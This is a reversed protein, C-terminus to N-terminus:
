YLKLAYSSSRDRSLLLHAPNIHTKELQILAKQLLDPTIATKESASEFLDCRIGSQLDDNSPSKSLGSTKGGGGSGSISSSSRGNTSVIRTGTRISLAAETLRRVMDWALFGLLEVVDDNLRFDIYQAPNLWDRFKKAKKFTFSAQRCEAYEIYEERSMERTMEDARRLRGRAEAEVEPWHEEGEELGEVNAGAEAVIGAVVDWPLRDTRRRGSGGPLSPTSGLKGVGIQSPIQLLGADISLVDIPTIGPIDDEIPEVATLSAGEDAPKSNQKRLERWQLFEKLRQVKVPDKRVM